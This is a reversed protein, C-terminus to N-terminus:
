STCRNKKSYSWHFQDFGTISHSILSGPPLAKFGQFGFAFGDSRCCRMGTIVGANGAIFEVWLTVSM